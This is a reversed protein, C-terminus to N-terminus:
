LFVLFACRPTNKCKAACNDLEPVTSRDLEQSPDCTGKRGEPDGRYPRVEPECNCSDGSLRGDLARGYDRSLNQFGARLPVPAVPNGVVYQQYPPKECTAIKLMQSCQSPYSCGRCVHIRMNQLPEQNTWASSDPAVESAEFCPCILGYRASCQHNYFAAYNLQLTTLRVCFECNCEAVYLRLLDYKHEKICYEFTPRRVFPAPDKGLFIPDSIEISRTGDLTLFQLQAIDIPYKLMRRCGLFYPHLMDWELIGHTCPWSETPKDFHMRVSIKIARRAINRIIMGCFPNGYRCSVPNAQSVSDARCVIENDGSRHPTTLPFASPGSLHSDPRAGSYPCRPKETFTWSLIDVSQWNSYSTSSTFGVWARGPAGGGEDYASADPAEPPVAQYNVM